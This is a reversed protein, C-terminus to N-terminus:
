QGTKRAKDNIRPHEVAMSTDDIVDVSKGLAKGVHVGMAKDSPGSAELARGM